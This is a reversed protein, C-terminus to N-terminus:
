RRIHKALPQVGKIFFTSSRARKSRRIRGMDQNPGSEAWLAAWWAGNTVRWTSSTIPAHGPRPWWAPCCRGVERSWALAHGLAEVSEQISMRGEESAEGSGRGGWRREGSELGLPWWPCPTSSWPRGAVLVRGGWGVKDEEEQGRAAERRWRRPRATVQLSSGGAHRGSPWRSGHAPWQQQM